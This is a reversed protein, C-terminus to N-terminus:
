ATTASTSTSPRGQAHRRALWGAGVVLDLQSQAAGGADITGLADGGDLRENRIEWGAPVLQTLALNDLRRRAANKVTIEAILDSGQALKAINDLPQGDADSYSVTVALGNAAVDEDGSKAIGRMSATVYLTRDSTNSVALPTGAASRRPCRSM